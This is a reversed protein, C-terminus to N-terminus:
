LRSHLFPNEPQICQYIRCNREPRTVKTRNEHSLGENFPKKKPRGRAKEPLGGTGPPQPLPNAHAGLTAEAGRAGPM